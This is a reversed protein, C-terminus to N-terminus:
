KNKMDEEADCVERTLMAQVYITQVSPHFFYNSYNSDNVPSKDIFCQSVSVGGQCQYGAHLFETVKEELLDNTNCEVLIYKM